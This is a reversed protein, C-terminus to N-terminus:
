PATEGLAAFGDLVAAAAAPARISLVLESAGDQVAFDLFPCCERERRALDEVQEAVGPEARFRLRVRGDERERGALARGALESLEDGRESLEAASLSCAITRHEAM